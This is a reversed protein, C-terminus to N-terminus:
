TVGPLIRMFASQPRIAALAVIGVAPLQPLEVMVSLGFVFKLPRVRPDFACRAM